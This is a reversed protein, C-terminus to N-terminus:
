WVNAFAFVLAGPFCITLEHHSAVIIASALVDKGTGVMGWGRQVAPAREHSDPVDKGNCL